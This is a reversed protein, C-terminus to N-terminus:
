VNPGADPITTTTPPTAPAVVEPEQQKGRGVKSTIKSRNKVALGALGALAALGGATKGMGGGSSKQKKKSGGLLGTLGALGKGSGSSQKKRSPAPRGFRASSPSPTSTRGFRGAGSPSSPRPSRSPRGRGAAGTGAHRPFRSTTASRQPTRQPM